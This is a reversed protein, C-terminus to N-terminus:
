GRTDIKFLPQGFEVPEGNEVLVAVVRGAVDVPIQNFVKMAEIICATKGAIAMDGAKLYPPSQPDAASYFTGVMPSNITKIADDEQAAAPVPACSAPAAPVASPACPAVPAAVFAGPSVVVDGGRKLKLQMDGQQIEMENLEYQKMLSLLHRINRADFLNQQTDSM